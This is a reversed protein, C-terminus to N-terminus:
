EIFLRKISVHLQKTTDSSTVNSVISLLIFYMKATAGCPKCDM